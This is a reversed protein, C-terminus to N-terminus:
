RPASAMMSSSTLLPARRSARSVLSTVIRPPASAQLAPQVRRVLSSLSTYAPVNLRCTSDALRRRLNIASRPRDQHLRGERADRCEDQQNRDRHDRQAGSLRCTGLRRIRGAEGGYHCTVAHTAVVLADPVAIQFQILNAPVIGACA